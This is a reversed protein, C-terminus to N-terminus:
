RLDRREFAVIGVLVLVASGVLLPVTGFLTFGETLPDSGLNWHWPSVVRLTALTDNLDGFGNLMFGGVAVASAVALAVAKRGLAAGVAFALAAHFWVLLISGTCAAVLNVTGVGEDLGVTPASAALSVAGIAGVATVLLFMGVSRALSVERRSVPQALLYELTGDHEAGAIANAGLGIGYVLLIVPFLNSFLQSNLYGVPSTISTDESVGALVRLSDPMNEMMENFEDQGEVSPYFVVILLVFAVLGIAWWLLARRRDAFM